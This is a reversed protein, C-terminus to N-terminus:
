KWEEEVMTRDVVSHLIYRGAETGNRRLLMRAKLKM